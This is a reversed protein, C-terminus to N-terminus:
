CCVCGAEHHPECETIQGYHDTAVRCCQAVLRRVEARGRQVRSKAASVTIGTRVALERQTIGEYDTLLLASRYPEELNQVVCRVYDTLDERLETEEKFLAGEHESQGHEEDRWPVQERDGRYHDAIGNRAVRFLWGELNAIREKGLARSARLLTDQVLDEAAERSNMRSQVFAFLRARLEYTLTTLDCPPM